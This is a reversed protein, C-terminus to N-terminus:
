KLISDSFRVHNRACVQAMYITYIYAFSFMKKKKLKHIYVNDNHVHTHTLSFIGQFMEEYYYYCLNIHRYTHVARMGCVTVQARKTDYPVYWSDNDNFIINDNHKKVELIYISLRTASIRSKQETINRIVREHIMKLPPRKRERKEITVCLLRSTCFTGIYWTHM